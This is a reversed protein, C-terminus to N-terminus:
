KLKKNMFLVNKSPRYGLAKYFKVAPARKNTSLYIFKINDKKLDEEAKKVLSKGIGKGQFQEKVLLEEIFAMQGISYYSKRIAILGVIQKDLISVYLNGQKEYNNLTKLANEITWKDNYPPKAFEIKILNAMELFDKKNAKRIQM